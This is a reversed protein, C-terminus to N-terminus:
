EGRRQERLRKKLEELRATFFQTTRHEAEEAEFLITLIALLFALFGLLFLAVLM